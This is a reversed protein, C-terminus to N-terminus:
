PLLFEFKALGDEFTKICLNFSDDLKFNLKEVKSTKSDYVLINM